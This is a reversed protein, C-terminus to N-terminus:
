PQDRGLDPETQPIQRRHSLGIVQSASTWVWLIFFVPSLVVLVLVGIVSSVLLHVANM